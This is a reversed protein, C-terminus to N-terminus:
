LKSILDFYQVFMKIGGSAQEWDFNENKAHYGHEPLSLGMFVIPVALHKAMSVVAGISGGERTFVADKGFALKVAEVACESYRGKFDGIYPCLGDKVIIEADPCKEKVFQQFQEAIKDPNQNPVLRMSVKLEAQHPVITKISPGHYGGAIGHVEFTPQLCIRKLADNPDNTRVLILENEQVFRSLDFGAKMLTMTEDPCAPIVDDYFGPIKVHGTKVDYLETVLHALEAVANRALGGTTGSHTDKEGTRLRVLMGKLGRLAYPIGPLDRSIWITDSIVISDTKLKSQNQKLFDEFSGSGIEEELEWIFKINIPIKHDSAYKAAYLAVLAPGKDDTTGRGYYVGNKIGMNFPQTKWESPDAPQVDLHNYVTVTRHKPDSGFTGIVVPNGKTKIIEAQAGFKQLYEFAVKAAIEIDPKHEPLVSVSPIDVLQKLTSEYESRVDNVYKSLQNLDSLVVM